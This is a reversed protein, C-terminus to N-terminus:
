SRVPRLKRRPRASTKKVIGILESVSPSTFLNPRRRTGIYPAELSYLNLVDFLRFPEVAALKLSVVMSTSVPRIASGSVSKRGM